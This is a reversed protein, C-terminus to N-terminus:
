TILSKNKSEEQPEQSTGASEGGGLGSPNLSELFSMTLEWCFPSLPPVNSVPVDLISVKKNIM